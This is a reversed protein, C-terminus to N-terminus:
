PYFLCAGFDADKEEQTRKDPLAYERKMKRYFAKEQKNMNNDLKISRWRIVKALLCDDTLSGILSKFEFWHLNNLDKSPYQQTLASYILSADSDYSYAAKDDKNQSGSKNYNNISYQYFELMKVMAKQTDPPVTYYFMGLETLVTETSFDRNNEIFISLKIIDKALYKVPYELGDIEVSKPLEDTLMNLMVTHCDTDM